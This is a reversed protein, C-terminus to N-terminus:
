SKKPLHEATLFAPLLYLPIYSTKAIWLKEKEPTAKLPVHQDIPYKGRESVDVDSIKNAASRKDPIDLWSSNIKISLPAEGAVTEM